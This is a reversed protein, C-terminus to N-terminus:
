LDNIKNIIKAFEDKGGQFEMQAYITDKDKIKTIKFKVNADKNRKFLSCIYNVLLGSLTPYLLLPVIVEELYHTNSFFILYKRENDFNIPINNDLLYDAFLKQDKTYTDSNSNVLYIKNNDNLNNSM